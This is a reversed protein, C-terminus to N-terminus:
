KFIERIMEAVVRHEQDRLTWVAVRLGREGEALVAIPPDGDRLLRAVKEAPPAAHWRSWELLLHPAHNAIEPVDRRANMGPIGALLDIMEAVRAEWVRWEADHDLKVFREVAALLGVIEEKGVKMGRGIGMHPSIARRGAAILDPRGLLLGSGQPGRLAKGGSFAVLDFGQRLYESFRAAPPVDAAADNFLPIGREKGARIWEERKIRGLPEHRNLFFMMATGPNIAGDLDARTEVWVLRAGTLLIQPEYGCKHGQQIVVENKLGATQPLQEIAPPNHRTMCAVTAVTIASAAGATVMAAPAGVLAAIRAGVKEQLEPISVFWGAAEAMAQVVEPPMVSGGLNTYTGQGNILTKIGLRAYINKDKTM